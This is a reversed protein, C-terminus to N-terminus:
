KGTGFIANMEAVVETGGAAYWEEVMRDFDDLPREGSILEPLYTNIIENLAASYQDNVPRAAFASSAIDYIGHANAFAENAAATFVPNSAATFSRDYSPDNIFEQLQKITDAACNSSAVVSTGATLDGELQIYNGNEDVTYGIEPQGYTAKATWEPDFMLADFVQMYKEVKEPQNELKYSFMYGAFTVPNFQLCGGKANEGEIGYALEFYADPNVLLLEGLAWGNVTDIFSDFSQVGMGAVGSTLQSRFEDWGQNWFETPFYGAKYWKQLLEITQKMEPQVTGYQVKGEEDMYWVDMNFGFAQCLPSLSFSNWNVGTFGYTDDIGNGDPDDYTFAELVEEFEALTKPVELGLNELWDGRVGIVNRQADGPRTQPISYIKGDIEYWKFVDGGFAESFKEYYKMLNPMNKEIMARDLEMVLGEDVYKKYDKIGLGGGEFYDFETGAAIEEQYWQNQDPGPRGILELKVNFTEEIEKKLWDEAEPARDNDNVYYWQLTIPEEAIAPMVGLVMLLAVLAALFRSTHKM